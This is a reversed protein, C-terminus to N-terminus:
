ATPTGARHYGVPDAALDAAHVGILTISDGTSFSIVVDNGVDKVLPKYGAATYASIDVVDREGGSGFDTIVDKGSGKAFVFTDIGAGGTLTDAGGGGEIRDSFADGTITDASAKGTFLTVLSPALAPDLTYATSAAPAPTLGFAALYAKTANPFQSNDIQGSFNGGNSDWYNQYIVNHSAFWQAALAIYPGATDSDVGWESFAEPKNHATAFADLWTLDPDNPARGNVMINWAKVPDKGEDATAYYFDMGVIDVYADGPYAKALDVDDYLAMVNWEFKFNSAVSRFANVYQQWAAVFTAEQGPTASWPFWDGNFEAAPRVIIDNTTGYTKILSKAAAVYYSNYAGTAAQALTAGTVVLPISWVMTADINNWVHQSYGDLSAQLESWSGSGAVGSFFDVSRGLFSEFSQLRAMNTTHLGSVGINHPVISFDAASLNTLQLNKFLVTDSSSLTMLVDAGVQTLHSKLQVYNSIGDTDVKVIDHGAAVGGTFGYVVDKGSGTAFSFTTSGTSEDALVDDGKGGALTTGAARSILLNAGDNGTGIIGPTLLILNEVNAPLTYTLFSYVTDVGGGAAETVTTRYDGIYYSDDGAGGQLAVGGAVDRLQDAAATGALLQGATGTLWTVATASLQAYSADAFQYSSASGM